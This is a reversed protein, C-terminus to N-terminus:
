FFDEERDPDGLESIAKHALNELERLTAHYDDPLPETPDFVKTAAQMALAFPAGTEMAARIAAGQIVLASLLSNSM